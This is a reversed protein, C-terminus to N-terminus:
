SKDRSTPSRHRDTQDAPNPRSQPERGTEGRSRQVETTQTGRSGSVAPTLPRVGLTREATQRRFCAPAHGDVIGVAQMWAYVIVPGVFKFGRRRLESSLLESLPSRTPRPEPGRIIENGALGWVFAAFEEGREQM